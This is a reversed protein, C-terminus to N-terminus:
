GENQIEAEVIYYCSFYWLYIRLTIILNGDVLVDKFSGDPIIHLNGKGLAPLM